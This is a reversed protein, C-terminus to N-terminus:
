PDWFTGAAEERSGAKIQLSVPDWRLEGLHMAPDKQSFIGPM